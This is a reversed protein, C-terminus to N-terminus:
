PSGARPALRAAPCPLAPASVPRACLAASPSARASVGKEGEKGGKGERWAVPGAGDLEDGDRLHRRRQADVRRALGEPAAREHAHGAPLVLAVQGVDHVHQVAARAEDHAEHRAEVEARGRARFAARPARRALAVRKAAPGLRGLVKEVPRLHAVRQAAVRRQGGAAVHAELPAQLQAAEAAGEEARLVAEHVLLNLGRLDGAAPWRWEDLLHGLEARELCRARVVLGLAVGVALTGAGAGLRARAVAAVVRVRQQLRQLRRLARARRARAAAAAARARRVRQEEAVCHPDNAAVQLAHRADHRRQVGGLAGEHELRRVLGDLREAEGLADRGRAGLARRQAELHWQGLRQLGEADAVM